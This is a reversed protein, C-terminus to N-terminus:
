EDGDKNDTEIEDIDGIETEHSYVGEGFRSKRIEDPTVAGITTVYATDIDAQMKRRELVEKETEQWLSNFRYTTDKSGTLIALWKDIAPELESEQRASIYDYYSRVYLDSTTGLGSSQSQGLLLPVPINSCSSLVQVVRDFLEGLGAVSATVRQFTEEKDLIATNMIHKTTDFLNLRKQVLDTGGNSSLMNALNDISLVGIIFENIIHEIGQVSEGLGRLRDVCGQLRSDGWGDNRARQLDDVPEGDLVIGRSEHVVFSGGTPKNIQYLQPEGYNPLAPDNYRTMVTVRYRDYPKAYIVEYPKGTQVPANQEKGDKIGLVIVCGGYLSSLRLGASLVQKAKSDKLMSLVEESDDGDITIWSRVMDQVPQNIIRKAIGDGRYLDRLCQETLTTPVSITTSTARDYVTGLGTLASEYNDAKSEVKKKQGIGFM